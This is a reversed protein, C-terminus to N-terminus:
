RREAKELVRPGGVEPEGTRATPYGSQAGPRDRPATSGSATSENANREGSASGGGSADGPRAGPAAWDRGSFPGGVWPEGTRSTPYGERAGERGHIVTGEAAAGAAQRFHMNWENRTIRGDSNRDLEAFTAASVPAGQALAGGAAFLVAAAGASLIRIQPM